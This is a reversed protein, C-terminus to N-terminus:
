NVYKSLYLQGNTTTWNIDITLNGNLASYTISKVIARKEYLEIQKIFDAILGNATTEVPKDIWKQIDVGFNPRLPDTGKQTNILNMICQDIDMMDTVVEGQGSTSLQWYETSIDALNM